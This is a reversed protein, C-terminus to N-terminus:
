AAGDAATATGAGGRREGLRLGAAAALAGAFVSVVALALGVVPAASSTTVVHVAFASYTTFGGLVGTGAFARVRPMRGDLAGVLIGLLLSGVINVAMTVAPVVLPHTGEALPVTLAARAAVGVAGGLVVLVLASPSFGSAAPSSPREV